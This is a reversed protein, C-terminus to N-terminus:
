SSFKEYEAEQKKIPINKLIKKVDKDLHKMHKMGARSVKKIIDGDAMFYYEGMALFRALLELGTKLSQNYNLGYVDRLIDLVKKEESSFKAPITYWDTM